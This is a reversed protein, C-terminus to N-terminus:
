IKFFRTPLILGDERYIFMVSERLLSVLTKKKQRWRCDSLCKIKEECAGCLM